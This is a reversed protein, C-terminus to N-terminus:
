YVMLMLPLRVDLMRHTLETVDNQLKAAQAEAKEKEGLRAQRWCM